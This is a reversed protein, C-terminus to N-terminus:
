IRRPTNMKKLNQQKQNLRLGAFLM